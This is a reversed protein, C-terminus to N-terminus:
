TLAIPSCQISSLLTQKRNIYFNIGPYSPRNEPSTQSVHYGSFCQELYNQFTTINM